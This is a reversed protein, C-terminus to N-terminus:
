CSRPSRNRLSCAPLPGRQHGAGHTQDTHDQSAQYIRFDTSAGSATPAALVVLLAEKSPHWLRAPGLDDLIEHQKRARFHRDARPDRRPRFLPAAASSGAKILLCRSRPARSLSSARPCIRCRRPPMQWQRQRDIRGFWRREGDPRYFIIGARDPKSGGPLDCVRLANCSRAFGDGKPPVGLQDPCVGTNRGSGGCGDSRNLALLGGGLALLAPASVVRAAKTEPNLARVPLSRAASRHRPHRGGSSRQCASVGWRCLSGAGPRPSSRGGCTHIQSTTMRFRVAGPVM